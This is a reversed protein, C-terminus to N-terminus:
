EFSSSFSRDTNAVVPVDVSAAGIIGLGQPEQGFEAPGPPNENLQVDNAQVLRLCLRSRQSEGEEGQDAQSFDL